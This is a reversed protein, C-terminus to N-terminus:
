NSHTSARLVLQPAPGTIHQINHGSGSSRLHEFLLAIAHEAVQDLHMNVATLPPNSTRARLGDYRTALLIDQPVRRNRETLATLAGSAFADVLVCLADIDPHETLLAHTAQYGGAEGQAEDVSALLPAQSHAQTFQQYASRAELYSNRRASGLILAIKQAGQAHLHNLLLQTTEFSRIDVFPLSSAAPTLRSPDVRREPDIGKEPDVGIKGIAVAPLARRQIHALHPDDASPEILLAGDVDLAELPSRGNALTPALVLALGKDLAATAAVAAVEMMFGLRSAGGAVAFPMSSLLAIMHGQGTRLRQANRNPQYGLTAAAHAVRERTRADVQGRANLAHSVTTPSVGALQAVDKITVRTPPIPSKPNMRPQGALVLSTQIRGFRKPYIKLRMFRDITFM